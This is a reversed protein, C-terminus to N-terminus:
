VIFKKETYYDVGNVLIAKAILRSATRNPKFHYYMKGVVRCDVKSWKWRYGYPEGYYVIYGVEKSKKYDVKWKYQKDPNYTNEFKVISIKGLRYPLELTEAELVIKDRILLNAEKIITSYTKYDQYDVKKNICEQVYFKYAEKLGKNM